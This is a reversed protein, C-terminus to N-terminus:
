AVEAGSVAAGGNLISVTGTFASLTMLSAALATVIKRYM